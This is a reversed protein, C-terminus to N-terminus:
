IEKEITYARKHRGNVFVIIEGLLGVSWVLIGLIMLLLSLFLSLRNGIPLDLFFRQAFLLITIIIGGLVFYVGISSFLRFPKKTFRTRFYLTFLDILRDIYESLTYFGAKEREQYHDCKVEKTKFGKNGALIPLFRYMNGYIDTEQLVNRRFVTVSCSVDHFDSRTLQRVLYNFARSQFQRFSSDVRNQRWPAIIDIQNNLGDLLKLFSDGTIQQYSGCVMVIDGSVDHLASNICVAQTTKITFEFARLRSAEIPLEKLIHRLFRGTSNAIILIEWPDQRESFLANLFRIFRPFDQHEEELLVIVSYKM